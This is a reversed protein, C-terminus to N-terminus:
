VKTSSSSAAAAIATEEAFALIREFVSNYKEEISKFNMAPIYYTEMLDHTQKAKKSHGLARGIHQNVRVRCDRIEDGCDIMLQSANLSKDFNLAIIEHSFKTIYNYPECNIVLAIRLDPLIILDLQKPDLTNHYYEVDLGYTLARDAIKSLFTSKGTGPQGELTYLTNTDYLLTDIFETKGQPTHGWAFLHRENACANPTTIKFIDREISLTMQNIQNWDQYNSTYYKWESLAVKAEQLAFYARQFYSSVKLNCALIEDHSQKILAEDWYEGLNIIEDVAGPNKPDVIHPATGDLLAIKLEPIVVGDISGNDSSCCHYEIDYGRDLMSQGIKKMFTSKGVGPGGKIVFIHKANQQIMHHYYSFFGQSTVAGPFMKKTHVNSM